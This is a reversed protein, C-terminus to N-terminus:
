SHLRNWLHVSEFDIPHECCCVKTPSLLLFHKWAASRPRGSGRVTPTRVSGWPTPVRSRAARCRLPDGPTPVRSPAAGSCPGSGVPIPVRPTAAWWWQRPGFPALGQRQNMQRYTFWIKFSMHIQQIRSENWYIQIFITFRFKFLRVENITNTLFIIENIIQNIKLIKISM